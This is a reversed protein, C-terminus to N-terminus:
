KVQLRFMAEGLMLMGKVGSVYNMGQLVSQIVNVGFVSCEIFVNEIGSGHVSKAICRLLDKAMHFAGLILYIKSFM